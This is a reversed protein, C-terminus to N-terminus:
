AVAAGGGIMAMGGALVTSAIIVAWGTRQVQKTGFEMGMDWVLHRVGNLSHFVFPWAVGLKIVFKSVAGLGAVAAVLSASSLDWGFLVPGILYVTGFVYFGGSLM